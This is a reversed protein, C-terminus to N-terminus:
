IILSLNGGYGPNGYGQNFGHGHGLFLVLIYLGIVYKLTKLTKVEMARIEMDRTTAMEM